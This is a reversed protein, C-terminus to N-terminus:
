PQGPPDRHPRVPRAGSLVSLVAVVGLGALGVGLVLLVTTWSQETWVLAGAAVLCAFAGWGLVDWPISPRAAPKGHRGV